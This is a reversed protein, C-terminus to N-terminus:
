WWYEAGGVTITTRHKMQSGPRWEVAGDMNVAHTGAPMSTVPGYLHSAGIRPDGPTSWNVIGPTPPWERNLDSWMMQYYSKQGLRQAFLPRVSQPLPDVLGGFLWDGNGKTCNFYFRGMVLHTATNPNTGNWGWNYLYDQNWSDATTAYWHQRTVGYKKEFLKRWDPWTWYLEDVLTNTTGPKLSLDPMYGNHENAYMLTVSALTRLDTGCVVEKARLRAAGMSPLLISILAAIIAVVVLLEILTFATRSRM